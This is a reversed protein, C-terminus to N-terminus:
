LRQNEQVNYQEYATDGKFVTNMLMNSKNNM